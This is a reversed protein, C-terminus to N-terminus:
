FLGWHERERADNGLGWSHPRYTSRLFDAASQDSYPNRPCSQPSTRNLRKQRYRWAVQIRKAALGRWYPSEYRIAGQVRPNRLYRAFRATFQELDAARLQFAEVNTLCRVLRNSLLRRGTIRVNKGDTNVSAELCWRLLEEGCVDGEKLTDDVTGDAGISEMKGRVIFVMNEVMGGPYLIENGEIYTKQKLKECIADLIPDDMLAFIRVKKVFEFLHRRINRQLHEPLNELILEENVGQTASWNYREANRVQRRLEEPLNRYSMWQEVDRSRLLMDFRRRGLSQLFNQMNGILLAFFFLGLGIIVMTFVIEGNFYSPTQNGALTSIQQFGWFLSYLYKTMSDRTTLNVVPTYIGYSFDGEPNFCGAAKENERWRTSEPISQANCCDILNGCSQLNSNHCADRLCQNVRQLGLLYWCSGIVHGVLLFTLTNIFFNTWASEFVFFGNPSQGGLLPLVRYLRPFYQFFVALRLLNKTQNARFSGLPVVSLMIIQPLPLVIILDVLFNGHLYNLAIKYPQDVIEGTGVVRSGPAVYALRFQLLMHLLYIFDTLTRFFVLIITMAWNITICKYDERASLLFFFLPDVFVAVMCSIVFFKNWGRVAKADPNVVGLVYPYLFSCTRKFWGKADGYLINHLKHDFLSSAIYNKHQVSKLSHHPKCFTCHPDNCDTFQQFPVCAPTFPNKSDIQLSGTHDVRGIGTGSSEMSNVPISSFTNEYSSPLQSPLMPLEDNRIKGM